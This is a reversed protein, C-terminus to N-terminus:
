RPSNGSARPSATSGATRGCSREVLARARDIGEYCSESLEVPANYRAVSVVKEITLSEGDLVVPALSHDADMALM